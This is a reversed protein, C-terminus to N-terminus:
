QNVFWNDLPPSVSFEIPEYPAPAMADTTRRSNAEDPANRRVRQSLSAALRADLADRDLVEAHFSDLRHRPLSDSRAPPLGQRHRPDAPPGSGPGRRGAGM